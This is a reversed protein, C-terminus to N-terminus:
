IWKEVELIFDSSITLKNNESDSMSKDIRKNIEEVTIQKLENGSVSTNSSLLKELRTLLEENQIKLFEQVFEIKRAQIDMSVSKLM